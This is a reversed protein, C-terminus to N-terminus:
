KSFRQSFYEKLKRHFIAAAILPVAVIAIILVGRVNPAIKIAWGTIFLLYYCIGWFIIIPIGIIINAIWHSGAGVAYSKAIDGADIKPAEQDKEKDM